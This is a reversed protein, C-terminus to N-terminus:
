RYFGERLRIGHELWVKMAALMGTWGMSNGFAAKAGADSLRWAAESIRVRTRSGDDVPDFEFTTTTFGQRASDEDAEWRVVIRSPAVAEIVDVPFAGPFDAFDWQVEAGAELRGKAGGTTFYESLVSPDAVAEYVERVRKSIFGSVTFGLETLEGSESAGGDEGVSSKTGDSM